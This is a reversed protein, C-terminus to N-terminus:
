EIFPRDTTVAQRFRATVESVYIPRLLQPVKLLAAGSAAASVRSERIERRLDLAQALIDSSDRLQADNIGPPSGKLQARLWDRGNGNIATLEGPQAGLGFRNAAIASSPKELM